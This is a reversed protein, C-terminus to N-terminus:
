IERNANRWRFCLSLTNYWNENLDAGCYL